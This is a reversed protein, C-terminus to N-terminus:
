EFSIASDECPCMLAASISLTAPVAVTVSSSPVLPTTVSGPSPVPSRAVESACCPAVTVIPELPPEGPPLPSIGSIIKPTRTAVTAPSKRAPWRRARRAVRRVSDTCSASGVWRTQKSSTAPQSSATVSSRSTSSKRRLGSRNSRSPAVRGDPTIRCPGGPVPLVSSALARAPSAPTGKKAAEPESKTSINTPTPGRRTRSSNVFARRESRPATTNM